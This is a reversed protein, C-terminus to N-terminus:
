AGKATAPRLLWAVVALAVAVPAAILWHGRAWDVVALGGQLVILLVLACVATWLVRLIFQWLDFRERESTLEDVWTPPTDDILKGSEDLLGYEALLEPDIQKSKLWATNAREEANKEHRTRPRLGRWVTAILGVWLGIDLYPTAAMRWTENGIAELVVLAAYCVGIIWHWLAGNPFLAGYESIPRGRRAALDRSEDSM